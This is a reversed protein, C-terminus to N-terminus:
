RSPRSRRAEIFAVGPIWTRGGDFSRDKRWKWADAGIDSFTNRDVFDRGAGDRGEGGIMVMTDDQKEAEYYAWQLTGAPLWRNDWKGSRPNFSRINTGRFTGGDASASEWDDQIAWGGLIWYATWRAHGESWGSGDPEMRRTSCDWEGILFAFQATEPPAAPHPGQPREPSALVAPSVVLWAALGGGLAMSVPRM